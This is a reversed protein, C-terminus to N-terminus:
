KFVKDTKIHSLRVKYGLNAKFKYDESVAEACIIVTVVGLELCKNKDYDPLMRM